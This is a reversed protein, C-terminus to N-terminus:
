EVPSEEYNTGPWLDGFPLEIELCQKFRKQLKYRLEKKPSVCAIIVNRGQTEYILARAAMQMQNLERGHDSYDTNGTEARMDDGDIVIADLQCALRKALTTKGSHRRGTIWIVM